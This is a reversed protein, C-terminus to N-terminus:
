PWHFQLWGFRCAYARSSRWASSLRVQLRRYDFGALQFEVGTRAVIRPQVLILDDKGPEVRFLAMEVLRLSFGLHPQGQLFESIM